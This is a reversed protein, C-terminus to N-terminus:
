SPPSPPSDESSQPAGDEEFGLHRRRNTALTALLRSWEAMVGLGYSAAECGRSSVALARDAVMPAATQSTWEWVANAQNCVFDRFYPAYFCGCVKCYVSWDQRYLLDTPTVRIVFNYDVEVAFLDVPATVGDHLRGKIRATRDTAIYVSFTGSCAPVIWDQLAKLKAYCRADDTQDRVGSFSIGLLEFERREDELGDKLEDGADVPEEDSEGEASPDGGRSSLSDTTRPPAQPEGPGAGRPTEFSDPFDYDGQTAARTEPAQKAVSARLGASPPNQRGGDADPQLM